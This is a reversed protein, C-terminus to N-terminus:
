VEKVIGLSMTLSGENGCLPAWGHRDFLVTLVATCRKGAVWAGVLAETAKRASARKAEVLRNWCRATFDHVERALLAPFGESHHPRVEIRVDLLVSSARQVAGSGTGVDTSCLVGSGAVGERADTAALRQCATAFRAAPYVSLLFVATLRALGRVLAINSKDAEVSAVEAPVDLAVAVHPDRHWGEHGALLVGDHLVAVHHGLVEPAFEVGLLGDMMPVSVPLVVIEAVQLKEGATVTGALADDVLHRECDVHQPEVRFKGPRGADFQSVDRM